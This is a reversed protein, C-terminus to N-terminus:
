QCNVAAHLSISSHRAKGAKSRGDSGDSPGDTMREPENATRPTACAKKAVPDFPDRQFQTGTGVGVDFDKALEAGGHTLVDGDMAREVDDICVTVEPVEADAVAGVKAGIDENVERIHHRNLGFSGEGHTAVEDCMDIDSGARQFLAM